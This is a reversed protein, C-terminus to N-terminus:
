LSAAFSVKAIDGKHCARFLRTQLDPGKESEGGRLRVFTRPDGQGQRGRGRLVLYSPEKVLNPSWSSMGSLSNSRQYQQMAETSLLGCASSVVSTLMLARVLLSSRAM